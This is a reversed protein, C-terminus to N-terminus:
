FRVSVCLGLSSILTSGEVVLFTPPGGDSSRQVVRGYATGAKRGSPDNQAKVTHSYTFVADKLTGAVKDTVGCMHHEHTPHGRQGLAKAKIGLWEEPEFTVLEGDAVALLEADKKKTAM